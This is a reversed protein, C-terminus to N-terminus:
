KFRMAAPLQRDSWRNRQFHMRGDFMHSFSAGRCKRGWSCACMHFPTSCRDSELHRNPVSQTCHRACAGFETSSVQRLREVKPSIRLKCSRPMGSRACSFVQSRSLWQALEPGQALWDRAAFRLADLARVREHANMGAQGSSPAVVKQLRSALSVAHGSDTFVISAGLVGESPRERTHEAIHEFNDRTQVGGIGQDLSKKTKKRWPM